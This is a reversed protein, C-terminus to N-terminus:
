VRGGKLRTTIFLGAKKRADVRIRGAKIKEAPTKELKRLLAIYFAYSMAVATRASKPLAAIAPKAKVFDKKIDKIIIAKQRDNFKDFHIGPFYVRGREEYDAKMDRLFNVKQYASGLAKAQPELKKYLDKDDCFVKLCMLGIVEASGFIYIQYLRQTYEKPKLDMHMSKFFPRILDRGIHYRKATTVFAHVLPNPSYGTKVAHFTHAELEKLLRAADKGKYTDVIEDAIRSLGYIAYIHPRVEKSFLKSSKGFSTSYSLTLNKALKYSTETYLDM